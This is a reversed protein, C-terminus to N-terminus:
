VTEYAESIREINYTNGFEHFYLNMTNIDYLGFPSEEIEYMWNIIDRSPLMNILIDYLTDNLMNFEIKDMSEKMKESIKSLIVPADYFVLDFEKETSLIKLNGCGSLSRGYQDTRFSQYKYEHYSLEYDNYKDCISNYGADDIYSSTTLFLSSKRASMFRKALKKKNTFAYLYINRGNIDMNDPIIDSIAPFKKRDINEGYIFIRYLKM